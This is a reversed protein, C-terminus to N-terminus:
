LGSHDCQDKGGHEEGMKQRVKEKKKGGASKCDTGAVSSIGVNQSLDFDFVSEAVAFLYCTKGCAARVTRGIGSPMGSADGM